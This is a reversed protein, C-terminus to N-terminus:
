SNRLRDLKRQIHGARPEGIPGALSNLDVHIGHSRQRRQPGCEACLAALLTIRYWDLQVGMEALDTRDFEPTALNFAIM